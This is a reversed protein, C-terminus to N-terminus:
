KLLLEMIWKQSSNLFPIKEIKKSIIESCNKKIFNVYNKVTLKGYFNIIKKLEIIGKHNSALQAKIDYLNQEPDRSPNKSKNLEKLLQKEKVKGNVLVPFGDFVIGEENINKSFAPM